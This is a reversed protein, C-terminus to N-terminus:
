DWVKPDIDTLAFYQLNGCRNCQQIIWAKFSNGDWEYPSDGNIHVGYLRLLRLLEASDQWALRRGNCITRYAGNGCYICKRKLEASLNGEKAQTKLQELERKINDLESVLDASAPAKNLDKTTYGIRNQITDVRDELEKLRSAFDRDTTAGLLDKTTEENM